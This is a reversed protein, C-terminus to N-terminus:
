IDSGWIKGAEGRHQLETVQYDVAKLQEDSQEPYIEQLAAFVIADVDEPRAARVVMYNFAGEDANFADVEDPKPSYETVMFLRGNELWTTM